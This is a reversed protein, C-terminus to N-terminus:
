IDDLPVQLTPNALCRKLNSVHFKDHVGDLEEHLDLRYSVPGVKEVIEFPGVFRPALKEKKGFCEVRAAKLRNKIQSIKETTEQVLKPGILHGEKLEAWIIPLRCKKGYLAEFPECRMSSHYSITYSFEVLPLHVDWSGGFNLVYERLMDELTQITRESQGNTQPHYAMSMDLRTGRQMLVCGVGIGSTDCYVVFDEPGDSLALTPTNCLKDKLTQFALEQEEGWDFTQDESVDYLAICVRDEDLVCNRKEM